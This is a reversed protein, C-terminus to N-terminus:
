SMWKTFWKELVLIKWLRWHDKQLIYYEIAEKNIIEAKVLNANKLNEKYADFNMYYNDPGTFGQKNRNIIEKPLDKKLLKQLIVKQKNKDFYSKTELKFIKEYIEKKLFPQRVEISNAMSARDVKTNILEGMFSKIDLIQFRKPTEITVDFYERYFSKTDQPIYNHLKKNLLFKLEKEDFEGMAMAKAYSDIGFNNIPLEWKWKKAKKLEAKSIEWLYDKHWSYGAFIEDGGEGSFILKNQKSALKAALYTPIISIDAIPDDYYYMLEDLINFSETDLIKSHHNTKYISAIKEAFKHESKEWDKFGISYTNFGQKLESLYKVIISSDYGGSLFSSIEETSNSQEKIAERILSEIEKILKKRRCKKNDIKLDFYKIHYINFNEDIEAYYGPKIKSINKFITNPSPIYRYIFYESISQENLEKKIKSNKIIAKIESAFILNEEDFYYYIPKVGFKDRTLFLKQLKEDFIAFAFSGDIKQLLEMGWENYAHLILEADSNSNFKYSKNALLEKIIKSNFIIGNFIIWINKNENTLPQNTLDDHANLKLGRYGLAFKEDLSFYSGYEDPGRHSLTDRMSYFLERNIKSNKSWWGTLGSM